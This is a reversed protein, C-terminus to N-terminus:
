ARCSLRTFGSSVIIASVRIKRIGRSRDHCLIMAYALVWSYDGIYIGGPNVSKELKAKYSIVATKAIHMGYVKNLYLPYLRALCRWVTRRLLTLINKM